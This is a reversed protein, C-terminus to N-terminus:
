KKVSKTARKLHEPVAKNWADPYKMWVWAWMLVANDPNLAYSLWSCHPENIVMAFEPWLSKFMGLLYKSPDESTLVLM